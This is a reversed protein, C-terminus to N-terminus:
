KHSRKKKTPKAFVAALAIRKRWMEARITGEPDIDFAIREGTTKAKAM